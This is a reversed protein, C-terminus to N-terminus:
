PTFTRLHGAGAVKSKIKAVCQTQELFSSLEPLFLVSMRRLDSLMEPNPDIAGFCLTDLKQRFFLQPSEHSLNQSLASLRPM